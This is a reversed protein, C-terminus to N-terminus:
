TTRVMSLAGSTDGRGDRLELPRELPEAWRPGFCPPLPSRSSRAAHMTSTTRPLLVQKCSRSKCTQRSIAGDSVSLHASGINSMLPTPQPQFASEQKLCEGFRQHIGIDHISKIECLLENWVWLSAPMHLLANSCLQGGRRTLGTGAVGSCLCGNLSSRAVGRLLRSIGAADCM